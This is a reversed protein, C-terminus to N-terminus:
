LVERGQLRAHAATRRGLHAILRYVRQKSNRRRSVDIALNAIGALDLLPKVCTAKGVKGANIIEPRLALPDFISVHASKILINAPGLFGGNGAGVGFAVLTPALAIVVNRM